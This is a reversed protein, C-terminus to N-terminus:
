PMPWAGERPQTTPTLICRRNHYLTPFAAEAGSKETGAIPHGPVFQVGAPLLPEVAAIVAGKVSGGDTVVTGPKLRPAISRM